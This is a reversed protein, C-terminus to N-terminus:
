ENKNDSDDLDGTNFKPAFYDQMNMYKYKDLKIYNSM